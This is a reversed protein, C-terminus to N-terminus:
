STRMCISCRWRAVFTCVESYTYLLIAAVCYLKFPSSTNINSNYLSRTHTLLVIVGSVDWGLVLPLSLKQCIPHKGSRIKWDFPNVSAAIVKVLVDDDGAKPITIDKIKLVDSYGYEEIVVAKM